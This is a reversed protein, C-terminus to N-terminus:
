TMLVPVLSTGVSGAVCLLTGATLVPHAGAAMRIAVFVGNLESSKRNKM